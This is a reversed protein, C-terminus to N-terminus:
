RKVAALKGVQVGGFEQSQYLQLFFLSLGLAAGGYFFISGQDNIGGVRKRLTLM